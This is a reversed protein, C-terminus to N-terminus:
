AKKSFSKSEKKLNNIAAKDEWDSEIINLKVILKRKNLCEKELVKVPMLNESYFFKQFPLVIFIGHDQHIDIMHAMANLKLFSKQLDKLSNKRM